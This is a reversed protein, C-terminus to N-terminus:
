SAPASKETRKLIETELRHYTELIIRIKEKGGNNQHYIIKGIHALIDMEPLQFLVRLSDLNAGKETWAVYVLLANAVKFCEDVQWYPEVASHKITAIFAVDLTNLPKQV